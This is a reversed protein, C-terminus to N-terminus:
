RGAPGTRTASLTLEAARRVLLVTTGSPQPLVDRIDAEAVEVWSDLSRTRYLRWRGGPARGLHGVLAVRDGEECPDPDPVAAPVPGIPRDSRVIAAAVDIRGCGVEIDWDPAGLREPHDRHDAGIRACTAEIVHRVEAATLGTHRARLLAALGAVHPTAGSTGGFVGLFDGAADGMSPMHVGNWWRRAPDADAVAKTPNWGAVGREDATFLGVGPAVVDIGAGYRSSWQEGGKGAVTKRVDDRDSAGVGIVSRHRAPFGVIRDVQPPYANGTAACMVIDASWAADIAEILPKTEPTTLSMNVVTAGALRAHELGYALRGASAEAGLRIPVIGCGGAVGPGGLPAGQARNDHIAGVVGAVPTGHPFPSVGPPAVGCPTGDVFRAEVDCGTATFLLDPHGLDFGSDIVAVNVGVAGLTRAWAEEMGIIGLNWDRVADYDDPPGLPLAHYAQLGLWDHEADVVGPVEDRARALLSTARDDDFGFGDDRPRAPDLRLLHWGGPLGESAPHRVLDLAALGALAEAERGSEILVMLDGPLPTGAEGGDSEPPAYVPTAAVAPSGSATLARAFLRITVGADDDPADTVWVLGSAVLAQYRLTPEPHLMRLGLEGALDRQAALERRVTDDLRLVLEGRRREYERTYPWRGIRVVDDYPALAV